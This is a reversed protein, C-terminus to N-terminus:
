YILPNIWSLTVHKKGLVMEETAMEAYGNGTKIFGNREYFRIAKENKMDVFLNLKIFGKERIYSKCADMLIKGVGQGSYASAVGFQSIYLWDGKGRSARDRYSFIFGVVANGSVAVICKGDLSLCHSHLGKFGKSDFGGLFGTDAEIADSLKALQVYDNAVVDRVIISM